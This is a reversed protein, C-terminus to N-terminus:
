REKFARAFQDSMPKVLYSLPTRSGIQIHVEAPMGSKLRLDHLKKLEDPTFSVRTIFYSVGTQTDKTLDAALRSVEGVLEPTVRQNFAPFRVYAAQGMTVQDIDQPAVKAEVVLTDSEPVILMVTESPSVVGGVTHVSMQHVTGAQPSILDIRKLQDEAAVRRENLEAFKAQIERLEKMVETQLDQEIQIIQLEIEAIKGKAQAATAILQSREGTLRASERQLATLRNTTTLDKQRLIELGELEKGILKIEEAKARQQGDLGEIEQRLQAIREHLQAKQGARASKRSEFLAREGAMIERVTAHDPTNQLDSPTPVIALGDREALLRSKRVSLEDLQGAVIQLNARTITDDLRLLLDGVSVKDGDRVHIENIVGGNPHQVKKVNSEVVVTGAALIAGSLEAMAAWGGLGGGLILISVFGTWLYARVSGSVPRPGRALSTKIIEGPDTHSSTM